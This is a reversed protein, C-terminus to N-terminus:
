RNGLYYPTGLFKSLGQIRGREMKELVKLPSKNPIAMYIYSGFKFDQEQSLLLCVGLRSSPSTRSPVTGFLTKPLNRYATHGDM